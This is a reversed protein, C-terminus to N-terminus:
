VGLSEADGPVHAGVSPETGAAHVLVQDGRTRRDIPRAAQAQVPAQLLSLHRPLRRHAAFALLGAVYARDNEFVDNMRSLKDISGDTVLFTQALRVMEIAQGAKLGKEQAGPDSFQEFANEQREYYLNMEERFRNALQLQIM